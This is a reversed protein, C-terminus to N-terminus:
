TVKTGPFFPPGLKHNTCINTSLLRSVMVVLAEKKVEIYSELVTAFLKEQNRARKQFAINIQLNKNKIDM